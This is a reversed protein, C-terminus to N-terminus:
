KGELVNRYKAFTLSRTDWTWLEFKPLVPEGDFAKKMLGLKNENDKRYYEAARGVGFDYPGPEAFAEIFSIRVGRGRPIKLEERGRRLLAATILRWRVPEEPFRAIVMIDREPGAIYVTNYLFYSRKKVAEKM